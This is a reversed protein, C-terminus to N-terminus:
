LIRWVREYAKGNWVKASVLTRDKSEMACATRYVKAKWQATGILADPNSAGIRACPECLADTSLAIAQRLVQIILSAIPNTRNNM